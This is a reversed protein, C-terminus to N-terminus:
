CTRNSTLFYRDLVVALNRCLLQHDAIQLGKVKEAMTEPLNELPVGEVLMATEQKDFEGRDEVRGRM